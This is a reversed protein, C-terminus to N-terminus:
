ESLERNSERNSKRMIKKFLILNHTLSTYPNKVFVFIIIDIAITWVNLINHACLNM